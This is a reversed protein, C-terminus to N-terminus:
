WSLCLSNPGIFGQCGMSRVWNYSPALESGATHRSFILWLLLKCVSGGIHCIMNLSMQSVPHAKKKGGAGQLPNPPLFLFCM